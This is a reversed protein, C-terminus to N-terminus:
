VQGQLKHDQNGYGLRCFSKQILLNNGQCGERLYPNGGYGESCNCLYGTGNSASICYSNTSVCAYDKPVITGEKPCSGNRIAWDSVVPAGRTARENIFRHGVLDQKRFSYWGVEVLMAYFCPNFSWSFSMNSVVASIETLNPSISTECCGMGTCPAGDETNNIGQCYSFCGAVYPDPNSGGILGLASCGIVTFRNQTTSPILPTGELSFEATYNESITNNAKFCSYGVPGYVRVEGRELSIDIVERPTSTSGIMPRPPQFTDNCTVAFYPNLACGAGIGFPYPITINGCKAPCGPLSVALKSSTTSIVRVQSMLFVLLFLAEKMAKSTHHISAICSHCRKLGTSM